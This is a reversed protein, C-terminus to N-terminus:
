QVAAAGYQSNNALEKVDLAFQPRQFAPPLDSNEETPDKNQNIEWSAYLTVRKAPCEKWDSWKGSRSDKFQFEHRLGWRQAQGTKCVRELKNRYRTQYIQVEDSDLNISRNTEEQSYVGLAKRTEDDRWGGYTQSRHGVPVAGVITRLLILSSGALDIEKLRQLRVRRSDPTRFIKSPINHQVTVLLKGRHRSNGNDPHAIAIIHELLDAWHSRHTYKCLNSIRARDPNDLAEFRLFFNPPEDGQPKYLGEKKLIQLLIKRWLKRAKKYEQKSIRPWEKVMHVGAGRGHKGSRFSGVLGPSIAHVHPRLATPDNGNILHVDSYQWLTRQSKNGKQDVKPLRLLFFESGFQDSAKLLAHNLAGIKAALVAEAKATMQRTVHKHDAFDSYLKNLVPQIIRDIIMPPITGVWHILAPSSAVSSCLKRYETSELLAALQFARSEGNRKKEYKGCTPCAPNGCRKIFHREIGGKLQAMFGNTCCSKLDRLRDQGLDHSRLQMTLADRIPKWLVGERLQHVKLGKKSQKQIWNRIIRNSQKSDLPKGTVTDVNLVSLGQLNFAKHINSKIKWLYCSDSGKGTLCSHSWKSTSPGLICGTSHQCPPKLDPLSM